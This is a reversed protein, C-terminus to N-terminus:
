DRRKVYYKWYNGDVVEDPRYESELWNMLWNNSQLEWATEGFSSAVVIVDPYKEPNLDYYYLLDETYTPTSMVTPAGVEVDEYLYGLTDVPHGMIWISDGTQIYQKWEEMSDRQRAVGDEEAIIGIAPGSRVISLDDAISIIQDREHLPIHIFVCRYVIIAFFLHVGGLMWKRVKYDFHAEQIWHYIPMVSACIAILMYTIAQIFANDSLVLTALLSLGSVCLSPYYIRKEMESLRNRQWFGIALIVLFPLSYGGRNSVSLINVVLFAMLVYWSCTIWRESTSAKKDKLGIALSVVFGLLSVGALMGLVKCINLIHAFTKDAFSVTHSPEVALACQLCRIITSIDTNWLLIGIFVLGIVSCVCTFCLADSAFRKSYMKLILIAGVYVIIVSPYSLVGMCLSVASLILFFKKGKDFYEWLALLMLTTFWLQLNGFEPLLLEKPSILIYIVAAAFAPIEGSVKHIVRYLLGSIGVRILLGIVQMYLVIGTTTGFCTVYIKMFVANLFASTQHPEWMQTVLADGKIMRYAMALQYEADYSINTFLFSVCSVLLFMVYIQYLRKRDKGDIKM